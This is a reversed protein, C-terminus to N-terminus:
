QDPAYELRRAVNFDVTLRRRVTQKHRCPDVYFRYERQHPLDADPSKSVDCAAANGFVHRPDQRRAELRLDVGPAPLLTRNKIPEGSGPTDAGCLHSSREVA